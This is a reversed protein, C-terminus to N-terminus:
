RRAWAYYPNNSGGYETARKRYWCPLWVPDPNGTTPPITWRGAAFVRLIFTNDYDGEILLFIILALVLAFIVTTYLIWCMPESAHFRQRVHHRQHLQPQFKIERSIRGFFLWPSFEDDANFRVSMGGHPQVMLMIVSLCTSCPVPPKSAATTSVQHM